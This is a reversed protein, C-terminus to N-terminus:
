RAKAARALVVLRRGEGSSSRYGASMGAWTKVPTLRARRLLALLRVKDYGRVVFRSRLPRCGEKLITWQNVVRPDRGGVITAEELVHAGDARRAWHRVDGKRRVADFDIMDILFLGGPKLARAVGRLTELDDAPDAFYGFSTWLNMAADFEGDYRLRRMDAREFRVNRRGRAAARAAELYEATVDIGVVDAGKRALRLAHRGTGCPVDLVRSGRKLRLARWLFKVEDVAAAEAEPSGPSFVESRFFSKTWDRSV